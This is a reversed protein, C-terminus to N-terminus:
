RNDGYKYTNRMIHKASDISCQNFVRYTIADVTVYYRSRACLVTTRYNDYDFAVFYSGTADDCPNRASKILDVAAILLSRWNLFRYAWRDANSSTRKVEGNLSHVCSLVIIKSM